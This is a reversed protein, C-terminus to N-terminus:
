LLSHASVMEVSVADGENELRKASALGYSQGNFVNGDCSDSRLLSSVLNDMKNSTDEEDFRYADKWISILVTIARILSIPLATCTTHGIGAHITLEIACNIDVQIKSDVKCFRHFESHVIAM